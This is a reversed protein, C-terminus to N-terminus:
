SHGPHGDGAGAAPLDLEVTSAGPAPPRPSYSVGRPREGVPVTASVSRDALDVASLSNDGSNTVWAFTGAPDVVVGHPGAGTEVTARVTMRATDILSVADGPADATGQDASVVPADDPTLSVQAPPASVAVSGVVERATLDVKTVEAPETIGTYAYRGDASVAVQAPGEGVPVSFDLRDSRADLVDLAGSGHNAVVIVSGDTSARLGHPMGGVEIRGVPELSRSRFVSVTGDGANTVYVKDDPTEIVHAPHPGTPATATIRYTEADIAVVMDASSTAYVTMADRGVQVNHPGGIGTLTTAVTSSEADLVTLSNGSEDAVWVSGTVASPQPSPEQGTPAQGDPEGSSCGATLAVLLVSSLAAAFRVGRRAATVPSM